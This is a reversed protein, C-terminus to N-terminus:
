RDYWAEFQRWKSGYPEGDGDWRAYGNRELWAITAPTLWEPRIKRKSAHVKDHHIRCLPVGNLVEFKPRGSGFVIHHAAIAGGCRDAGEGDGRYGGTAVVCGWYNIELVMQRWDSYNDPPEIELTGAQAAKRQKATLTVGARRYDDLRLVEAM